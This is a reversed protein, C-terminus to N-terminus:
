KTKKLAVVCAAAGGLSAALAAIWAFIALSDGTSPARRKGLVAKDVGRRAGLVSGNGPTRRAGLVQPAVPPNEVVPPIYVEPTPSPTVEPTPTEGPGPTEEPTPTVDPTPTEEPTPTVDPTPTEEPTPTVDPTPTEEPTPTVDPTPTEEPTPTPEETPTATPTPTPTPEETPTATPTPTVKVNKFDADGDYPNCANLKGEDEHVGIGAEKESATLWSGDDAKLDVAERGETWIRILNGKEDFEANFWVKISHINQDFAWGEKALDADEEEKVRLYVSTYYVSNTPAKIQNQNLSTGDMMGFDIAEQKNLPAYFVIDGFSQIPSNKNVTVDSKLDSVNIFYNQEFVKQVFKFEEDGWIKSDKVFVPKGEEDVVPKGDKDTEVYGVAKSVAIEKKEPEVVYKDIKNTTTVEVKDIQKKHEEVVSITDQLVVKKEVVKATEREVTTVIEVEYSKKTQEDYITRIQHLEGKNEYSEAIVAGDVNSDAVVSAKPAVVIGGLHEKFEVDKDYSGFNWILYSNNKAWQTSNMQQAITIKSQDAGPLVNLVITVGKSNADVLDGLLHGGNADATDLLTDASINLIVIDDKTLSSGNKLLAELNKIQQVDGAVTNTTDKSSMATIIDSGAKAIDDLNENIKMANVIDDLKKPDAKGDVAKIAKELEKRDISVNGEADVKVADSADVKKANDKLANKNGPDMTKDNAIEESWLTTGIQVNDSGVILMADSQKGNAKSSKFDTVSGEGIYSYNNEAGLVSSNSPIITGAEAKNAAVEGEIHGVTDKYTDAYVGFGNISNLESLLKEVSTVVDSDKIEVRSDDTTSSSITYVKGKLKEIQEKITTVTTTTETIDGGTTTTTTTIKETETTITKEGGLDQYTVTTETVTNGDDSPVSTTYVSPAESPVVETTSSVEGYEESVSESTKVPTGNPVKTTKVETSTGPTAKGYKKNFEEETMKITTASVEATGVAEMTESVIEDPFEDSTYPASTTVVEPMTTAYVEEKYEQTTVTTETTTVEVSGDDKRVSDVVPESTVVDAPGDAEFEHDMLWEQNDVVEDYTPEPDNEAAFTAFVNVAIVVEVILLAILRKTRRTMKKM